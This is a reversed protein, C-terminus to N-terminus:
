KKLLKVLRYDKPFNTYSYEQTHAALEVALFLLFFHYNITKAILPFLNSIYKMIAVVTTADQHSVCHELKFSFFTISPTKGAMISTVVLIIYVVPVAYTFAHEHVIFNRCWEIVFSLLLSETISVIVRRFYPNVNETVVDAVFSLPATAPEFSSFTQTMAEDMCVSGIWGSWLNKNAALWAPDDFKLMAHCFENIDLVGSGGTDASRILAQVEKRSYSSQATALHGSNLAVTLEDIDIYGSKDTDIKDFLPRYKSPGIVRDKQPKEQMQRHRAEAFARENMRQKTEQELKAKELEEDHKRTLRQNNAEIRAVYYRYAFLAGIGVFWIHFKVILDIVTSLFSGFIGSVARPVGFCVNAIMAFIGHFFNWGVCGLLFIVFLRSLVEGGDVPIPIM